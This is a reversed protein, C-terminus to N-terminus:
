SMLLYAALALIPLISGGSQAGQPQGNNVGAAQGTQFPLNSLGPQGQTQGQGGAWQTLVNSTGVAVSSIGGALAAQTAEKGAKTGATSSTATSYIGYGAAALGVVAGAASIGLLVNARRRDQVRDQHESRWAAAAQEESAYMRGSADTFM